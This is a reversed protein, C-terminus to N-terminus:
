PKIFVQVEKDVADVTQLYAFIAKLDEDRMSAYAPWPMETQREGKEIPASEPTYGKFRQVFTEETWGEIGTAHPTINASVATGYGDHLKFEFGGAFAEAEVPQGSEQRTHCTKCGAMETLYEGRAVPDAADPCPPRESPEPIMRVILNLPFNLSTAPLDNEVSPLTRVYAIIRELDEQCMHRYHTYGMIPFLPRGDKSVGDTIARAIEGDSWDGLHAPTLNSAVLTGPFDIDEDWVHGGEGKSGQKLPQGFRGLDREGHCSTCVMVHEALYEGEAIQEPTGEVKLDPPDQMKPLGLFLYGAGAGIGLIGAGVVGLGIKAWLKM